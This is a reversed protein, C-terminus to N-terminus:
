RQHKAEPASDAAGAYCQVVSAYRRAEDGVVELATDMWNRRRASVRAWLM